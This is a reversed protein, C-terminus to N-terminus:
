GQAPPRTPRLAVAPLWILEEALRARMTVLDLSARPLPTTAVFYAAEQLYHELTDENKWRGRRRLWPVNSFILYHLVAGGGRCGGPTFPLHRLGLEELAWDWVQRFAFESWTWIPESENAGLALRMAEFFNLVGECLVTVHQSAAHKQSHRTKAKRIAFIGLVACSTVASQLLDEVAVRVIDSWQAARVEEPRCICHVMLLVCLVARLSKEDGRVVLTAFIALAVRRPVPVRTDVPVKKKWASFMKWLVAMLARPQILLQGKLVRLSLERSLGSLLHGVQSPGLLKLVFQRQLYEAILAIFQGPDECAIDIAPAFSRCALWVNLRDIARGYTFLTDKTVDDLLLDTEVRLTMRSRVSLGVDLHGFVIM